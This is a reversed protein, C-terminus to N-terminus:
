ALYRLGRDVAFATLQRCLLKRKYLAATGLQCSEADALYKQFGAELTLRNDTPENPMTGEAEWQRVKQQADEWNRTNLTERIEERGIFGDVWMPCRCRRYKRGESRHACEKIHRRYITLM